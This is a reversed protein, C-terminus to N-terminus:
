GTGREWVNLRVIDPSFVRWRFIPASPFLPDKELAPGIVALDFKDAERVFFIAIRIAWASAPPRRCGSVSWISRAPTPFRMALPIDRWDLRPPGM